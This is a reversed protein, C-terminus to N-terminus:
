CRIELLDSKLSAALIPYKEYDDGMFLAINNTLEKRPAIQKTPYFLKGKPVGGPFLKVWKGNKKTLLNDELHRVQIIEDDLKFELVDSTDKLHQYIQEFTWSDFQEKFLINDEDFSKRSLVKYGRELWDRLRGKPFFDKARFLDEATVKYGFNDVMFRNLNDIVENGSQSEPDFYSKGGTYIKQIESLAANLGETIKEEDQKNSAIPNDEFMDEGFFDETIDKGEEKNELAALETAYSAETPLIIENSKNTFIQPLEANENFEGNVKKEVRTLGGPNEEWINDDNLFLPILEYTETGRKSIRKRVVLAEEEFLAEEKNKFITGDPINELFEFKEQPTSKRSLIDKRRREIDAKKDETNEVSKSEKRTLKQLREEIAESNNAYYQLDEPTTAKGKLYRDIFDEFEVPKEEVVRVEEEEKPEGFFDETIDIGEQTANNDVQKNVEDVVRVVNEAQTIPNDLETQLNNQEERIKAREKLDKKIRQTEIVAEPTFNEKVLETFLDDEKLKDIDRLHRELDKVRIEIKKKTAKTAKDAPTERELIEYYAQQDKFAELQVNKWKKYPDLNGRLATHGLYDFLSYAEDGKIKPDITGRFFTDLNNVKENTIELRSLTYATNEKLEDFLFDLTKDEKFFRKAFNLLTSNFKYPNEPYMRNVREINSEIKNISGLMSNIKGLKEEETKFETGFNQNFSDVSIAKLDKVSDKFMDSTGFKNVDTVISFLSKFEIDDKNGGNDLQISHTFNKVLSNFRNYVPNMYDIVQQAEERGRILFKPISHPTGMLAGTLSGIIAETWFEEKSIGKPINEFVYALAGKKSEYNHKDAYYDHLSSGILNQSGEQGGEVFFDKTTEKVIEYIGKRLTYDNALQMGEDLEVKLFSSPISKQLSKGYLLNKFQFYNSAAIIPINLGTTWRGADQARKEIEAEGLDQNQELGQKILDRKIDIYNHYGEIFAEGQATVYTTTIWKPAKNLLTINGAKNAAEILNDGTKYLTNLNKIADAEQFTKTLNRFGRFINSGFRRIQNGVNLATLPTALGLTAIEVAADTVLGAALGGISFGVNKIVKDGWFNASGATFPIVGQFPKERELETYYNPFQNEMNELVTQVDAYLTDDTFAQVAKGSRILDITAPISLFTSAFTGVANYGAKIAGNLLKSGSSQKTAYLDEVDYANVVRDAPTFQLFPNTYREKERTGYEYEIGTGPLEKTLIAEFPDGQTTGTNTVPNFEPPDFKPLLSPTFDIPTEIETRTSLFDFPDPM